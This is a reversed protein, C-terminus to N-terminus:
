SRLARLPVSPDVAMTRRGHRASGGAVIQEFWMSEVFTLHQVLGALNTGTPVTSRRADAESLGALKKIVGARLDDLASCLAHLEPTMARNERGRRCGSSAM